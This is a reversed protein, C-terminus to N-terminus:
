AFNRQFLPGLWYLETPWLLQNTILPDPTRIGRSARNKKPARRLQLAPGSQLDPAELQIPEFGIAGVFQIHTHTPTHTHNKVSVGVSLSVGLLRAYSLQYLM